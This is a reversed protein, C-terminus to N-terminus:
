FELTLDQLFYASMITFTAQRFIHRELTLDKITMPDIAMPMHAPKSIM